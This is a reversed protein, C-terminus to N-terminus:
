AKVAQADPTPQEAYLHMQDAMAKKAAPRAMCRQHYAHLKPHAAVLQTHRLINLVTAMMIDACTFREVLYDRQALATDLDALKTEVNNLAAPRRLRAWEADANFLDIDALATVAPEVSNVAAFMWALAHSRGAEDAPMLAPSTSAIRHVIAGSEFLSVAGDRYAPVQGFPQLARYPPLQKEEFDVLETRYAMGAEELAWRVRLDRVLGRAFDPVWRLTILTPVAAQATSM